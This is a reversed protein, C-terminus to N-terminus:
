RIFSRLPYRPHRARANGSRPMPRRSLMRNQSRQLVLSNSSVYYRPAFLKELRLSLKVTFVAAFRCFLCALLELQADVVM